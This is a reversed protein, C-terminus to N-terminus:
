VVEVGRVVGDGDEGKEENGLWVDTVLAVSETCDSELVPAVDGVLESGRVDEM